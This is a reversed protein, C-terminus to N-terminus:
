GSLYLCHYKSIVMLIYFFPLSAKAVYEGIGDGGVIDPKGVVSPLYILKDSQFVLSSLNVKPPFLQNKDSILHCPKRRQVGDRESSSRLEM